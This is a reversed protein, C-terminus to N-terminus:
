VEYGMAEVSKLVDFLSQHQHFVFRYIEDLRYNDDGFVQHLLPRSLLVTHPTLGRLISLQLSEGRAHRYLLSYTVAHSPCAEPYEDFRCLLIGPGPSFGLM